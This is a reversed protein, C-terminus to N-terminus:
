PTVKFRVEFTIALYDTTGHRAESLSDSVIECQTASVPTAVSGYRDFMFSEGGLVSSLFERLQLHAASNEVLLTSTIKYGTDIRALLTESIGSLSRSQSREANFTRNYASCALDFSYTSGATHGSVLDRKATYSFASM